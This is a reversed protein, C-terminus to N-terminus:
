GVETHRSHLIFDFECEQDCPLCCKRDAGGDCEGTAWGATCIYDQWDLCTGGLADCGSDDQGPCSCFM